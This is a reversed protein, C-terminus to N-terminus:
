FPTSPAGSPFQQRNEAFIFIRHVSGVAHNSFGPKAIPARNIFKQSAIRVVFADTGAFGCVPNGFHQRRFKQVAQYLGLPDTNKVGMEPLYRVAGHGDTMRGCPREPPQCLIIGPPLNQNGGGSSNEVVTQHFLVNRSDCERFSPHVAISM